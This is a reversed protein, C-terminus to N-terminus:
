HPVAPVETAFGALAELGITVPRRDADGQGSVVLAETSQRTRSVSRNSEGNGTPQRHAHRGHADELRHLRVALVRETTEASLPDDREPRAIPQRDSTIRGTYAGGVPANVVASHDDGDFWLPHQRYGAKRAPEIGAREHLEECEAEYGVTARAEGVQLLNWGSM